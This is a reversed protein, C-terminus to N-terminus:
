TSLFPTNSLVDQLYLSLYPPIKRHKGITILGPFPIHHFYFFYFTFCSQSLPSLQLFEHALSGSFICPLSTFFQNCQWTVSIYIKLNRKRRIARRTSRQEAWEAILDCLLVDKSESCPLTIQRWWAIGRLQKLLEIFPLLPAELACDTKPAPYLHRTTLDFGLKSM